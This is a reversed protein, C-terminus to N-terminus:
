KQNIKDWLKTAYKNAEKYKDELEKSIKYNTVVQNGRAFVNDPKFSNAMGFFLHGFANGENLPTPAIYPVTLIDADYGVELKGLKSGLIKNAYRYTENIVNLIQDFGFRNPSSYQLHMTFLLTLWESTISSSIGDNGIIVPIGKDEFRAYDPLGVGNNMNSNVNLAVTCKRKQLINLEKEDVFLAHTIISDENLLGFADLREVVRKQYKTISDVQDMMSEAVHIHIPNKGLVKSVKKLTVDSLSMAAHLGFLGRAYDTKNDNIFSMNEEIAEDIDFRDSTEFCFIGRLGADKTVAKKLANLSGRIEAGSAHHDILTTVGNKMYDVASVIGSYYIIENDIERDMKWWLQDLIEQFNSPNYPVSMGRAFTSYIHTHGVVLSPMVLHENADIIKYDKNVFDDMDGIEIIKKDFIIYRNESYNNFDYLKANILAYTM